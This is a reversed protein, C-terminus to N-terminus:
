VLGFCSWGVVTAVGPSTLADLACHRGLSCFPSAIFMPTKQRLWTCLCALTCTCITKSEGVLGFLGCCASTAVCWHTSHFRADYMGLYRRDGIAARQADFPRVIGNSSGNLSAGVGNVTLRAQDAVLAQLQGITAQQASVLARMERVAADLLVVESLQGASAHKSRPGATAHETQVGAAPLEPRKGAGSEGPGHRDTHLLGAAGTSRAPTSSALRQTGDLAPGHAPCHGHAAALAHAVVGSQSAAPAIAAEGVQVASTAAQAHSGRQAGCQFAAAKNVQAHGSGRQTGCHSLSSATAQAHSALRQQWPEFTTRLPAANLRQGQGRRALVPCQSCHGLHPAGTLGAALGGM